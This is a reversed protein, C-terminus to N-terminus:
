IHCAPLKTSRNLRKATAWAQMEDGTLHLGTNELHAVSTDVRQMIARETEAVQIYTDIADIMLFHPSRKKYAALSKIRDRQSQDLKVTVNVSRPRELTASTM